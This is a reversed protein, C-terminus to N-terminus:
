NIPSSDPSLFGPPRPTVYIMKLACEGISPADVMADIQPQQICQGILLQRRRNKRSALRHGAVENMNV